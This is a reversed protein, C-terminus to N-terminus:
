HRYGRLSDDKEKQDNNMALQAETLPPAQLGDVGDTSSNQSAQDQTPRARTLVAATVAMDPESSVM